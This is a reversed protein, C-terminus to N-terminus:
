HRVSSSVSCFSSCYTSSDTRLKENKFVYAEPAAFFFFFFFGLAHFVCRSSYGILPLTQEEGWKRVWIPVRGAPSLLPLLPCVSIHGPPASYEANLSSFPQCFFGSPSLFQLTHIQLLPLIASFIDVPERTRQSFRQARLPGLIATFECLSFAPLPHFM